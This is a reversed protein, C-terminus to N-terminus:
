IDEDSTEPPRRSRREMEFGAEPLPQLVELVTIIAANLTPTATTLSGVHELQRPVQGTLFYHTMSTVAMM